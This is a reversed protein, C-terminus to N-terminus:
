TFTSPDIGCNKRFHADRTPHDDNQNDKHVTQPSYFYLLTEITGLAENLELSAQFSKFAEAYQGLKWYVVGINNLNSGEGLKNDITQRIELAHQYYELAKEFQGLDWYVVGINNLINAEGAQDVLTRCITLAQHYYELAEQYQGQSEYVGGINSLTRSEGTRDVLSRKVELAQHYYNLNMTTKNPVRVDFPRPTEVVDALGQEVLELGDHTEM